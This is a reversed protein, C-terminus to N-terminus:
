VKVGTPLHYRVKCQSCYLDPNQCPQECQELHANADDDNVTEEEELVPVVLCLVLRTFDSSLCVLGHALFSM